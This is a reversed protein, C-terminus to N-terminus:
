FDYHERHLLLAYEIKWRSQTEDSFFISSFHNINCTFLISYTISCTFFSILFKVLSIKTKFIFRTSSTRLFFNFRVFQLFIFESFVFQFLAQLETQRCTMETRKCAIPFIWFSPLHTGCLSDFVIFISPM